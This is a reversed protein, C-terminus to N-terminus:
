AFVADLVAPDLCPRVDEAIRALMRRPLDRGIHLPVITRCAGLGVRVHCDRRREEQPGVRRLRRLLETSTM